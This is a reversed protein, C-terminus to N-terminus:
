KNRYEMRSNRPGHVKEDHDECINHELDIIKLKDGFWINFVNDTKRGIKGSEPENQDSKGIKPSKRGVKPKKEKPPEFQDLLLKRADNALKDCRENNPDGSHGRVWRTKVKMRKVLFQLQDFKNIKNKQKFRHTGNTWGLIIRSDSILTVELNPETDIQNKFEKLTSALGQIAAELEADNNSATLMQGSGESHKQGDVVIVFGYGGPKDATTASGDAYVEIKM